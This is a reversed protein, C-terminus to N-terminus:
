DGAPIRVEDRLLLMGPVELAPQLLEVEWEQQLRQQHQNPHQQQQQQEQKAHQQLQHQHLVTAWTAWPGVEECSSPWIVVM